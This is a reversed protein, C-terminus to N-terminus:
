LSDFHAQFSSKGDSADQGARLTIPNAQARHPPIRVQNEPRLFAVFDPCTAGAAGCLAMLSLLVAFARTTTQM